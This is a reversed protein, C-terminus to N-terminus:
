IRNSFMIYFAFFWYVLTGFQMYYARALHINNYYIATYNYELRNVHCITFIRLVNRTCDTNKKKFVIRWLRIVYKYKLYTFNWQFKHLIPSLLLSLSFSLSWIQFFNYNMLTIHIKWVNELNSGFLSAASRLSSTEIARFLDSTQEPCPSLTM